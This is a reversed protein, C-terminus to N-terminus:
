PDHWGRTSRSEVVYDILSAAYTMSRAVRPDPDDRHRSVFARAADVEEERMGGLIWHQVASAAVFRAGPRTETFALEFVALSEEGRLALYTGVTHARIPWAKPTGLPDSAQALVEEVAASENAVEPVLLPLFLVLPVGDEHAIRFVNSWNQLSPVFTERRAAEVMDPLAMLTCVRPLFRKTLAEEPSEVDPDSHTLYAAISMSDSFREREDSATEIASLRRLSDRCRAWIDPGGGCAALTLIVSAAIVVRSM